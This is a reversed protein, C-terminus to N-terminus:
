VEVETITGDDNYQQVKGDVTEMVDIIGGDTADVQVRYHASDLDFEVLYYFTGGGEILDSTSVNKAQDGAGVSALANTTCASASWTAKYGDESGSAESSNQSQQQSQNTASSQEDKKEETQQKPTDAEKVAEVVAESESASMSVEEGGMGQYTVGFDKTGDAWTMVTANDESAGYLTVDLGEISKTWKSAFEGKDRDTMPATHKGDAKRVVLMTAGTEYTAQAVGDAYAFVPNEFKIDGITISEPVGFEEFGAGKAAETADKADTWKVSSEVQETKEETKTETETKTEAQQGGCGVLALTVASAAILSKAAFSYKM